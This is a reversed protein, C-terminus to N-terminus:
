NILREKSQYQFITLFYYWLSYNVLIGAVSLTSLYNLLLTQNNSSL